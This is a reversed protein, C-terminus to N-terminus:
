IRLQQALARIRLKKSNRIFLTSHCPGIFISSDKCGDIYVNSLNRM